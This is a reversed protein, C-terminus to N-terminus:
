NNTNEIKQQLTFIENLAQMEKRIAHRISYAVIFAGIIYSLDILILVPLSFYLSFEPTLMYFGLTYMVLITITVPNHVTQRFQYFRLYKQNTSVTTEGLDIKGSRYISYLEIIIRLGLTGQMLAQGIHSIPQQFKAVYLFFATIGALALALVLINKVHMLVAKKKKAEAMGIIRNTDVADPENETRALQWSKKLDAVLDSM